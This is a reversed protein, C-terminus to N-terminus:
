YRYAKLMEEDCPVLKEINHRGVVKDGSEEVQEATWEAFHIYIAWDYFAGKKAVWRLKKDSNSMNVGTRNDITVGTAFVELNPLSEFEKYTM